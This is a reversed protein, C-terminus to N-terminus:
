SQDQLIEQLHDLVFRQAEASYYVAQYIGYRGERPKVTLGIREGIATPLRMSKGDADAQKVMFGKEILWGTITTTKLKKRAPTTSPM